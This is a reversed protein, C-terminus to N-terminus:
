TGRKTGNKGPGARIQEPASQVTEDTAPNTGAKMLSMVLYFVPLFIFNNKSSKIFLFRLISKETKKHMLSYM